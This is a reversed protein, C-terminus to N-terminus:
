VDEIFEKSGGGNAIVCPLGSAMAEAVVNGYTESISPFVFVDSSAYLRSLEDHSLNGLFYAGPMKEELTDMAYGDGAIILNYPLERERIEHYIGVLTLLNKEWVLRSAFLLNANQNGTLQRMYEEDKKLPSFMGSELGRKWVEILDEFIGIAMLESKMERTPALILDCQNYFKQMMAILYNRAPDIFLPLNQFYHDVYSIFNTHYITVVPISRNNAFSLAFNGLPSPTAIHVIDPQFNDLKDEIRKQFLFSLTLKYNNNIPLRLSPVELVEHGIDTSPAEGTIFLFEFRDRPIRHIIQYMTRVAGDHNEKLTEAFFAVKIKRM